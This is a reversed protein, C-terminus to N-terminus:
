IKLKLKIKILKVLEPLAQKPWLWQYKLTLARWGQQQYKRASTALPTHCSKLKIGHHKAQWVLLHDEGFPAQENYGGLTKFSQQSLCLGQDGFPLRLIDSRIRAGFENIWLKRTAKDYFYLNFYFLSSQSNKSNILKILSTVNHRTILSDAHLFWIFSNIAISAGLNLQIARGPESYSAQWLLTPFQQQLNTINDAINSNTTAVLIVQTGAPLLGFDQCLTLWQDEDPALPIVISISNTM